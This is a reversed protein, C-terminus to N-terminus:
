ELWPALRELVDHFSVCVLLPAGNGQGRYFSVGLADFSKRHNQLAELTFHITGASTSSQGPSRDRDCPKRSLRLSQTDGLETNCFLSAHFAPNGSVNTSIYVYRADDRRVGENAKHMSLTTKDSRRYLSLAAFVFKGASRADFALQFTVKINAVLRRGPHPYLDCPSQHLNRGVAVGKLVM